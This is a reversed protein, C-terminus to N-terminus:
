SAEAAELAEWTLNRAKRARKPSLEVGVAELGLHNAVALVSGHGCFPDVVTHSKTHTLVFRCALECARRGM